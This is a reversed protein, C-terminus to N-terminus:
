GKKIFYARLPLFVGSHAFVKSRFNMQSKTGDAFSLELIYDQLYTVDFVRPFM